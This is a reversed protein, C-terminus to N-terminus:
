LVGDADYISIRVDYDQAVVFASSGFPGGPDRVDRDDVGAVAGSL